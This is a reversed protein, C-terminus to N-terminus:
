DTRPPSNRDTWERLDTCPIIQMDALRDIRDSDQRMVTVANALYDLFEALAAQRGRKAAKRWEAIEKMVGDSATEDLSVYVQKM